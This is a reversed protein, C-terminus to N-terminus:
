RHVRDLFGLGGLADGEEKVEALLESGNLVMNTSREHQCPSARTCLRWYRYSHNDTGHSHVRAPKLLAAAVGLVLVM